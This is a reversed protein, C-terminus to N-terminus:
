YPFKHVLNKNRALGEVLFSKQSVSFLTLFAMKHEFKDFNESSSEGKQYFNGIVRNLFYM